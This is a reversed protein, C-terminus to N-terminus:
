GTLTRTSSPFGRGSEPRRGVAASLPPDNGVAARGHVATRCFHSVALHQGPGIRDAGIRRAQRGVNGPYGGGAARGIGSEAPSPRECPQFQPGEDELAELGALVRAPGWHDLLRMPGGRFPAFGTGMIMAFDVDDPSGAVGEELCRLAENVMLLVMRQQLAERGLDAAKGGTAVFRMAVPNVPEVEQGYAYFGAGSKRGLLGEKTMAELLPPLPMREGFSESLHRAVHDAVDIGVEDLLRLPGMPMGFDLMCADIDEARAGAAFLAGAEALYPMLIRNVLFGPSDKVVVPFKGMQQVMRLAAELVEASTEPGAVIEVLPMRAVPNFFHLGIVRGPRRTARALESISLGSTNSALVADDPLGTDLDSFVKRKIELNEVVAEIVWGVRQLSAEGTVPTIREMAQRAEAETFIHRKVAEAYAAAAHAMGKALFEPQMDRLLVSAERSTLWQAIGAGMVGAGLVLNPRERWSPAPVDGSPPALWPSLDSLKLRKARDQLLFVRLLNRAAETPALALVADEELRMAEETSRRLGEVVVDLACPIAPYNGRTKSAALKGARARALRASLPNNALTRRSRKPKGRAILGLAMRVFHERPSILDVLGRKQAPRAALRRGNLIIDLAAPLGVLRPLRVCGGWAPLIGLSTEPLGIRTCSDPSAIRYDCALALECGGGLAAGHVAAVTVLPLAAIRSFTQQGLRILSRLQEEGMGEGLEKLDLGAVFISNKASRIVLGKLPLRREIEDLAEGLEGLLARSLVNASSGEQDLVLELVDDRVPALRLHKM